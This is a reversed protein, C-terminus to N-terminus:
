CGSNKPLEQGKKEIERKMMKTKIEMKLKKFIFTNM